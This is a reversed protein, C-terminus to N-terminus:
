LVLAIHDVPVTITSISREPWMWLNCPQLPMGQSLGDKRTQVDVVGVEDFIRGHLGESQADEFDAVDGALLDVLGGHELLYHKVTM